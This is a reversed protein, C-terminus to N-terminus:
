NGNVERSGLCTLIAAAGDSRQYFASANDSSSRGPAAPTPPPVRIIYLYHLAGNDFGSPSKHSKDGATLRRMMRTGTIGASQSASAPLDGSTLLKLGAQDVHHFGTEQHTQNPPPYNLPQSLLIAHVRSASTATLQSQAVTYSETMKIQPLLEPLISMNRSSLTSVSIIRSSSIDSPSPLLFLFLHGLSLGAQSCVASQATGKSGPWQRVRRKGNARSAQLGLVKPSASAPLDGSILLELSAQGVQLFRTEVLFVFNALRPLPHRYDWSSPLSLCSFRKFKTPLPQLSSLDRWQVGAQAVSHSVGDANSSFPSEMSTSKATRVLSGLSARLASALVVM